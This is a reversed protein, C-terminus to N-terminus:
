ASAYNGPASVPTNYYGPAGPEGPAGGDGGEGGDGGAEDDDDAGCAEDAADDLDSCEEEKGACAGGEEYCADVAADDEGAGDECAFCDEGYCADSAHYAADCADDEGADEPDEAVLNM